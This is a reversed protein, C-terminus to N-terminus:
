ITFNIAKPKMISTIQNLFRSGEELLLNLDRIVKLIDKM